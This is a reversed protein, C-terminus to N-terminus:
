AAMRLMLEAAQLLTSRERASLLRAMADALWRRRLSMSRRLASTGQATIAIVHRRRDAADLARAIFGARDLGAILRSVSQPKLGERRALEVASMSGDRRLTALLGLAGGTLESAGAAQRLRRALRLVARVVM